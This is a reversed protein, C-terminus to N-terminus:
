VELGEVEAIVGRCQSAADALNELARHDGESVRRMLFEARRLTDLMRLSAIVHSDNAEWGAQWASWASYATMFKYNGNHDRELGRGSPEFWNEFVKRCTHQEPSEAQESELKPSM